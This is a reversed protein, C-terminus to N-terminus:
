TEEKYYYFNFTLDYRYVHNASDTTAREQGIFSRSISPLSIANFLLEKVKESLEAASYLSTTDYVAIFFTAVDIHNIRGADALQLVVFQQPQKKPYEMLVPVGELGEELYKKITTEIM